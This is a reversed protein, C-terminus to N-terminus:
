ALMNSVWELSRQQELTRQKITSLVYDFYSHSLCLHKHFLNHKQTTPTQRWRNFDPRWLHTEMVSSLEPDLKWNTNLQSVHRQWPTDYNIRKLAGFSECIKGEKTLRLDVQGVTYYWYSVFLQFTNVARQFSLAIELSTWESSKINGRWKKLFYPQIQQMGENRSGRKEGM